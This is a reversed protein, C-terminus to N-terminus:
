TTQPCPQVIRSISIAQPVNVQNALTQGTFKWNMRGLAFKFTMIMWVPLPTPTHPIQAVEVSLNDDCDVAEGRVQLSPTRPICQGTLNRCDMGSTVPASFMLLQSVPGFSPVRIPINTPTTSGHGRLSTLERVNSDSDSVDHTQFSPDGSDATGLSLVSSQMNTSPM